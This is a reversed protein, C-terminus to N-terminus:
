RDSLFNELHKGFKTSPLEVWKYMLITVPVTVILGTMVGCFQSLHLSVGSHILKLFVAGGLSFVVAIHIVYLSFSYEGVKTFFKCSFIKKLLDTQVVLYIFMIASLTHYFPHTAIGLKGLIEFNINHYYFNTEYHLAFFSLYIAIILTIWSLLKKERLHLCLNKGEKSYVLDSLMIGFVFNLYLTQITLIIFIIYVRGRNKINGLLALFALSLISGKLEYSMTWLVLNYSTVANYSFYMGWLGEYLADIFNASFNYYLPLHEWSTTSAAIERNFIWDNKLLVYSILISVLPLVTLRAYRRLTASTLPSIERNQWFRYSLVFGSLVFFGCVMFVSNFYDEPLNGFFIADYHIVVVGLALFGRLGDIYDIRM